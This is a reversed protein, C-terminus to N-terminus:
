RWTHGIRDERSKQDAQGLQGNVARAGPDPGTAAQNKSQRKLRERPQHRPSSCSNSGPLRRDLEALTVEPIVPEAKPSRRVRSPAQTVFSSAMQATVMALTLLGIGMILGATIRRPTTVPFFDGYGVTTVTV